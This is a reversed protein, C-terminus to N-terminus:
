PREGQPIRLSGIRLSGDASTPSSSTPAPDPEEVTQDELFEASPIFFLSGTIATSFDLIRDHIGPPNGLFMNRLMQETVDPTRSYGIFYTGFEEAGISGFPMNERVIQLENGDDDTLTNLVLHSNPAKDEDAFEVDDLKRRGIVRQQEEVSIANWADVDHTYKQVILYSGAAFAADEGGILAVEAAEAGIPSETGDVFGLLDRQEFYRFGHVEDVVDAFATFRTRLQTALEFCLDFRDARIHLVLDGPTAPARHSPGELAVFPHLGMPKPLDPFMRDWLDSGIGAVATLRADPLRFGVANALSGFGSLFAAAATEAGERVTLVLVIVSAQPSVTVPQPTPM